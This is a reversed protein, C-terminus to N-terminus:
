SVFNAVAGVISALITAAAVIAPFWNQRFWYWPVPTNIREWYERGYATTRLYTRDGITFAQLVGLDILYFAAEIELTGYQPM